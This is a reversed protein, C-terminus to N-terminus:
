VGQRATNQWIGHNDIAAGFGQGLSVRSDSKNFCCPIFANLAKCLLHVKRYSAM